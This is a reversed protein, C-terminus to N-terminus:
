GFYLYVTEYVGFFERTNQNLLFSSWCKSNPVNNTMATPSVYKKLMVLEEVVTRKPSVIAKVKDNRKCSIAWLNEAWCKLRHASNRNVRCPARIVNSEANIGGGKLIIDGPATIIAPEPVWAVIPFTATEPGIVLM